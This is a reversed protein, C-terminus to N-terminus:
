VAKVRRKDMRATAHASGNVAHIRKQAQVPAAGQWLSPLLKFGPELENYDCTLEGGAEVDAAAFGTFQDTFAVNPTICHNMFRGNDTELVFLGSFEPHKYAYREVFGQMEKPLTALTEEKILRDFMENFTWIKTGARIREVAFVGVGEIASPGVFTEVLMM